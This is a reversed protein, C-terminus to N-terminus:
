LEPQRSKTFAGKKTLEDTSNEDFVHKVIKEGSESFVDFNIVKGYIIPIIYSVFWNLFSSGSLIHKELENISGFKHCRTHMDHYICEILLIDSESVAWNKVIGPMVDVFSTGPRPNSMTLDKEVAYKDYREGVQSGVLPVADIIIQSLKISM